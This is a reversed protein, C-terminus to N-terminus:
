PVAAEDEPSVYVRGSRYLALRDRFGDAMAKFRAGDARALVDLREVAKAQLDAAQQYRGVAAHCAALTDQEPLDLGAPDGMKEAAAMGRAADRADPYPSTCWAWALENYAGDHGAEISQNWLAIARARAEPTRKGHYLWSGYAIYAREEKADLARQIWQQGRAEDVKGFDGRFYGMALQTQSLADGREADGLLWKQAQAPNKAMGVGDVALAALERRARASDHYNALVEYLGVADKPTGIDPKDLLYMGALDFAAEIDAIQTAAFLWTAASTWRGARRDNSSVHRMAWPEGGHASELILREGRAPDRDAADGNLLDYGLLAQARPAGAAAAKELWRRREDAQQRQGFYQALVSFGAGNGNEAPDALFAIDSASLEAKRDDVKRYLALRRPVRSGREQMRDLRTQLAAPYPGDDLLDWTMAYHGAAGPWWQDARDLLKMAAVEDRELGIGRAYALALLVTPIAEEKEAGSLLPEVLDDACGKFPSKDCVLLWASLSVVGGQQAAPKFAAVKARPDAAEHAKRAAMLDVDSTDGAEAWSKVMTISYSHRLAVNGFVENDRDLTYITDIADFAYHRETKTEPDWAAAVFPLYRRPWLETYYFYSTQLGSTVLLAVADAPALIRIPHSVAPDGSSELAHRSLAALAALERDAGADDGLAQACLFAVRRIAISIPADQVATALAGQQSACRQADVKIADYGVEDLVNFADFGKKLDGKALFQQWAKDADFKPPAAAFAPTGFLLAAFAITLRRHFRASM